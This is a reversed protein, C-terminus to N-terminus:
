GNLRELVTQHLAVDGTAVIGRLNRLESTDAYDIERGDPETLVGGTARLLAEPACTDWKNTGPCPYLYCDALGAAVMACKNGAGGVRVIREEPVNLKAVAEEVLPHRHSRTTVIRLREFPEHVLGKPLGEVGYGVLGWVLNGRQQPGAWPQYVVGALPRSKWAIGILITVANYQGETYEKTGDLPDVYVTLEELPYQLPLLAPFLFTALLDTRAAPASVSPAVSEEGVIRLLPFHRALTGIILEQAKGDAITVVDQPGTKEKFDLHKGQEAVEHLIQSAREAVDCAVSLLERIDLSSAM